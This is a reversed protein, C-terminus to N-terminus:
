RKIKNGCYPCWVEDTIPGRGNCGTLRMGPWEPDNKLVCEGVVRLTGKEVVKTPTDSSM